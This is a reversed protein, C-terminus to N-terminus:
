LHVEWTGLAFTKDIM